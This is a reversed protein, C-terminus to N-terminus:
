KTLSGVAIRHMGGNQRGFLRFIMILLKLQGPKNYLGPGVAGYICLPYLVYFIKGETSFRWPNMIITFENRVYKM